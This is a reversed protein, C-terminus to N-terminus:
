QGDVYNLLNFSKQTPLDHFVQVQFSQFKGHPLLDQLQCAPGDFLPDVRIAGIGLTCWETARTPPFSAISPAPGLLHV